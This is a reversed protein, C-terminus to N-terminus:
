FGLNVDRTFNKIGDVAIALMQAVSHAEALACIKLSSKWLRVAGAPFKLSAGEPCTVVFWSRTNPALRFPHLM